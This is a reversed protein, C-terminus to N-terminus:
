YLRLGVNEYSGYDLTKANTITTTQRCYFVCGETNKYGTFLFNRMDNLENEGTGPVRSLVFCFNWPFVVRCTDTDGDRFMKIRGNTKIRKYRLICVIFCVTWFPFGTKLQFVLMFIRTSVSDMSEESFFDNWGNAISM